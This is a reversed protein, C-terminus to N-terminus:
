TLHDSIGKRLVGCGLLNVHKSATDGDAQLVITNCLKGAQYLFVGKGHKSFLFAELIFKRKDDRAAAFGDGDTQPVLFLIRVAIAAVGIRFQQLGQTFHNLARRLNAGKLNAVRRKVLNRSRDPDSESPATTPPPPWIRGRMQGM